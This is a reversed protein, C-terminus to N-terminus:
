HFKLNGAGRRPHSRVRGSKVVAAQLVALTSFQHTRKRTMDRRKCPRVMNNMQYTVAELWNQASEVRTIMNALRLLVLLSTLGTEGSNWTSTRVQGSHCSSLGSAKWLGKASRVVEHIRGRRPATSSLLQLVDGLRCGWFTTM